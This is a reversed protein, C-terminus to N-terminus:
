RLSGTRAYHEFPVLTDYITNQRQLMTQSHWDHPQLRVALSSTKVEFPFM